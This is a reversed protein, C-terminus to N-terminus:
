ESAASAAMMKLPVFGLEQQIRRTDFVPGREHGPREYYSLDLSDGYRARMIDPITDAVCAQLGAANMIRCGPKLPSEAAMTLCRVGDSVHMASIHAMGWNWPPAATRYERTEDEPRVGCLRLVIFDLQESQRSIYRALEEMLYKSFGYGKNDLCPHEDPIPLQLPRFEPCLVGAAAISSALVFKRCGREILYRLLRRTGLVNVSLQEEETGLSTAAALHILVDISHEDLRRQGDPSTFDGQIAAVGEVDTPRRSLCVVDHAGAMALALAHGIFGSTGTILIRLRSRM